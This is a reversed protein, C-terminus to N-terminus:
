YPVRDVQSRNLVPLAADTVLRYREGNERVFLLDMRLNVVPCVDLTYSVVEIVSETRDMVAVANDPGDGPCGFDCIFDDPLCWPDPERWEVPRFYGSPYEVRGPKRWDYTFNIQFKPGDAESDPAVHLRLGVEDQSSSDTRFGYGTTFLTGATINIGTFQATFTAPAEGCIKEVVRM